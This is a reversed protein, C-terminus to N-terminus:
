DIIKKLNKKRIKGTRTFKIFDRMEKESRLIRKGGVYTYTSKRLNSPIYSASDKYEQKSRRIFSPMSGFGEEIRKTSIKRSALKREGKTSKPNQLMKSRAKDFGLKINAKDYFRLAKARATKTAQTKAKNIRALIKKGEPTKFKGMVVISRDQNSREAFPGQIKNKFIVPKRQYFATKSFMKEATNRVKTLNKALAKKEIKGTISSVREKAISVLPVKTPDIDKGLKSRINSIKKQKEILKSYVQVEKPKKSKFKRLKLGPAKTVKFGKPKKVRIFIKKVM